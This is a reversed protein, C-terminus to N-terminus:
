SSGLKLNLFYKIRTSLPLYKLYPKTTAVLPVGNQASRVLLRAFKQRQEKSGKATLLEILKEHIRNLESKFNEPSVAQKQKNLTTGLKLYRKIEDRTVMELQEKNLNPKLRDLVKLHDQLYIIRKPGSLLTQSLSTSLVRYATLVEPVYAVKAKASINLWAFFDEQLIDEPYRGVYQMLASFRILVTPSHVVVGKNAHGTLIAKFTNEPFQYNEEFFRPEMIEGHENVTCYNGCVLAVEEDAELVAMHKKLKEPYQFDDGPIPQLYKGSVLPLAENVTACLGMNQQHALFICNVENRDIWNQIVQQSNDTSCDDTIILQLNPYDLALGSDLAKEVYKAHNYCVCLLTVLPKQPDQFRVM